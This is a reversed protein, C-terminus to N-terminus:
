NQGAFAAQNVRLSLSEMEGDFSKRNAFPNGLALGWSQMPRIIGSTIGKGIIVGDSTVTFLGTVSTYSFVIDHWDTTFIKIPATKIKLQDASETDFRVDLNGRETVNVLLTTHIRLLEGASKFGAVGRIRLHLEFDVSEFFPAIMPAKMVIPAAGQGLIVPGEGLSLDPVIVPDRGAFSTFNGTEPSFVLVDPGPVNVQSNATATTGDPLAITLTVQHPGTEAFIHNMAVGAAKTGDDIQWGFSVDAMAIGEPLASASADFDFRNSYSADAVVRIVPRASSEAPLGAGAPDLQPAGLGTGDLPGGKLSTFSALNAPDGSRAAVFVTDYFGPQGPFRDQIAFNGSVTWDAQTDYGSVKSVVNKIVTVDTSTPAVRIQPNWLGPNDDKGQSAANRIVSNNAIVLGTTEGVTIGHIHANIIVNDSINVNRYFMEPGMLGRDVQDNRMFISQTYWGSGSNLINGRITIDTSPTKTGNTWFQIMDSHDASELVRNFDHIHNGEILVKQVEAFNMGDMRIAHVDNNKVTVDTSESVVLARYFNRIESDELTVGAMDRLSLGFGTPYGDDEASVGSALDGDFVSSKITIDTGDTMQFMRLNAKDEPAFSYDFSLGDLVLHSVGRLDMASFVAPAAPDASRVTIPAGADGGMDELVLAGYQGGALQLVTGAVAADLAAAFDGPAAVEVVSEAALVAPMGCMLGLVLVGVRPLARFFRTMTKERITAVMKKDGEGTRPVAQRVTAKYIADGSDLMSQERLAM